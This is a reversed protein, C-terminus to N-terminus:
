DTYKDGAVEFLGPIHINEAQDPRSTHSNINGTLVTLAQRSQAPLFHVDIPPFFDNVPNFIKQAEEHQKKDEAYLKERVKYSVNNHSELTSFM